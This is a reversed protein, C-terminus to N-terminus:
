LSIRSGAHLVATATATVLDILCGGWWLVCLIWSKFTLAHALLQRCDRSGGEAHGKVKQLTVVSMGCCERVVPAVLDQDELDALDVYDELM